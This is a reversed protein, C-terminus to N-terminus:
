DWIYRETFTHGMYTDEPPPNCLQTGRLDSPNELLTLRGEPVPQNAAFTGPTFEQAIRV